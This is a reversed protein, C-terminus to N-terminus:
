NVLAAPRWENVYESLKGSQSPRLESSPAFTVTADAFYTALILERVKEEDGTRGFASPVYRM